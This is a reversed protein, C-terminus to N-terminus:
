GPEGRREFVVVLEEGVGSSVKATASLVGFSVWALAHRLVKGIPRRWFPGHASGHFIGMFMAQSTGVSHLRLHSLTPDLALRKFAPLTFVHLHRPTEWGRWGDRFVRSLASRANPTRIVIRGGPQLLGGLNSLVEVPDVVHEIVHNLTIVSFPGRAELGEEGDVIEAGSQRAAQRAKPDFDYGVLDTHRRDRLEVLFSGDGCGYDLVPGPSPLVPASAEFEKLTSARATRGVRGLASPAPAGHTTYDVYFGAIKDEPIRAVFVLGCAPCRFYDLRDEVGYEYDPRGRLVPTSSASDLPCPASQM